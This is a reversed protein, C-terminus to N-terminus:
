SISDMVGEKVGLRDRFKSLFKATINCANQAESAPFNAAETRFKKSGSVRRGSHSHAQRRHPPFADLSLPEPCGPWGLQPGRLSTMCSWGFGALRSWSPGTLGCFRSAYHKTTKPWLSNPHHLVAFALQHVHYKLAMKILAM